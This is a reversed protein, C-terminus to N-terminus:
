WRTKLKNYEESDMELGMMYQVFPVFLEPRERIKYDLALPDDVNFNFELNEIHM